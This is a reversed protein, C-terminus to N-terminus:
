RYVIASIAPMLTEVVEIITESSHWAITSHMHSLVTFLNSGFCVIVELVFNQLSLLKPLKRTRLLLRSAKRRDLRREFRRGRFHCM